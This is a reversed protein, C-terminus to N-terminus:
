RWLLLTLVLSLFYVVYLWTTAQLQQPSPERKFYQKIFTPNSGQLFRVIDAMYVSSIGFLFGLGLPTPSSSVLYFALVPLVLLILVQRLWSHSTTATLNYNRASEEEDALKNGVWDIWNNIPKEFIFFLHGILAGALFLITQLLWSLPQSFSLFRWASIILGALLYLGIGPTARRINQLSFTPAASDPGPASDTSYTTNTSSHPVPEPMNNIM